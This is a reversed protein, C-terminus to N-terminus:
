PADDGEARDAALRAGTVRHTVSDRCVLLFAGCGAEHLWLERIPGAPNDRLHLWDHFAAAAGPAGPDPRRMLAADGWPVFERSDRAGCLPCPILM